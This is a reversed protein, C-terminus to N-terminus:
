YLVPSTFMKFPLLTSMSRDILWWCECKLSLDVCKSALCFIWALMDLEVLRSTALFDGLFDCVCTRVCACVCRLDDPCLTWRTCFRVCSSSCIFMERHPNCGVAASTEGRFGQVDVRILELRFWKWIAPIHCLMMEWLSLPLLELWPDGSVFVPLQHWSTILASVM